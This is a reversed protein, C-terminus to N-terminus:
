PKQPQDPSTATSPATSNQTPENAATAAVEAEMKRLRAITQQVVSSSILSFDYLNVLHLLMNRVLNRQVIWVGKEEVFTSCATPVQCDAIHGNRMIHLNWMKMLEKEGENVDTFEDIMHQTRQKLWIPDNEEESDNDIEQPRLPLCTGSHFYLRNHGSTFPRTWDLELDEGELFESLSPEPRRPKAVLINTVPSRRCPGNRRFAFGMLHLDAPNGAYSGDYGENISVDIRAGKPHPVFVFTFRSHCLKLHKLLSYLKMCNLTCWPCHLDDRAETQQRMNGNYLFQYFIRQRKEQKEPTKKYKVNSLAKSNQREVPREEFPGLSQGTVKSPTTSLRSAVTSPCHTWTLKFRLTPGLRFTEFPGVARGDMITEWQAQKNQLPLSHTQKLAIEYDGETLLCSHQKDYVILEAQYEASSIMDELPMDGNVAGNLVVDEPPSMCLRKPAPEGSADEDEDGMPQSNTVTVRLVLVYSKIQGNSPQFCEGPISLSPGTRSAGDAGSVCPVQIKGLSVHKMPSLVDKRKKHCIKLLAAEVMVEQPVVAPDVNDAQSWCFTIFNLNLYRPTCQVPPSLAKQEEVKKEEAVIDGLVSDVKFQKRRCHSRSFRQSMYTVNRQLFVPAVIHRTRLFRYIQTPKEFAQLFLEHDKQLDQVSGNAKGNEMKLSGVSSDCRPAQKGIKKGATRTRPEKRRKGNDVKHPAMVAPAKTTRSEAIKASEFPPFM